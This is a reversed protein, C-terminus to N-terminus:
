NNSAPQSSSNNLQQTKAIHHDNVHSPFEYEYFYKISFNGEKLLNIIRMQKKQNSSIALFSMYNPTINGAKDLSLTRVNSFYGTKASYSKWQGLKKWVPLFIPDKFRNNHPSGALAYGNDFVGPNTMVWAESGYVTANNVLGSLSIMLSDGNM